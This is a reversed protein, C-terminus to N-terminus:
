AQRKDWGNQYAKAWVTKGGIANYPKAQRYEFPSPIATEDLNCINSETFRNAPTHVVLVLLPTIQPQSNM